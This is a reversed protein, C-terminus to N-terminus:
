GRTLLALLLGASFAVGVAALPNKRIAAGLHEVAETLDENAALRERGERYLSSATAAAKAGLDELNAGAVADKAGDLARQAQRAAAALASATPTEQGQAEDSDRDDEATM